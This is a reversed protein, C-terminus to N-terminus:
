TNSIVAIKFEAGKPVLFYETQGATMRMNTTAATPNLGIQVSCIADAHVRILVTDNKFAASQASSGGIAVTQSALSPTIAAQYLVPVPQSFEEVYLTAAWTPLTCFLFALTLSLAFSLKRFM